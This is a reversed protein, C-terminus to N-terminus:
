HRRGGCVACDPDTHMPHTTEGPEYDHRDTWPAVDTVPGEVAHIAAQEDPAIIRQETTSQTESDWTTVRFHRAM